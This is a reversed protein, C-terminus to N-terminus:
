ESRCVELPQAFFTGRVKAQARRFGYQEPNVM